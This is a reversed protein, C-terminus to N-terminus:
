GNGTSSETGGVIGTGLQNDDHHDVLKAAVIQLAIVVLPAFATETEEEVMAGVEAIAIVVIGIGAGCRSVCRKQGTSIGIAVADHGVFPPVRLLFTSHTRDLVLRGFQNADAAGPGASRGVVQERVSQAVFQFQSSLALRSDESHRQLIASGNKRSAEGAVAGVPDILFGAGPDGGGVIARLKRFPRLIKVVALPRFLVQVLIPFVAVSFDKAAGFGNVPSGATKVFQDASSGECVVIFEFERFLQNSVFLQAVAGAVSRSTTLKDALSM